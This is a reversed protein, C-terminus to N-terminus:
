LSPRRFPAMRYLVGDKDLFQHKLVAGLHLVILTALSWALVLHALGAQDETAKRVDMPLAHIFGIHPMPLTKYLLTPINTPSASVMIWGTLPMVLIIFYFGWHVIHAASKEWGKMSKLYPPPRSVLRWSLRLLALGLVTFGVSKHLQMVTFKAMGHENQMALGLYLNTFLLLAIAWHLVIAVVTYRTRVPTM